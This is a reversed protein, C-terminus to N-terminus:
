PMALMVSRFLSSHGPSTPSKRTWGVPPQLYGIETLFQTYVARDIPKGPNATAHDRHWTDIESQLRDRHELLARNRPAFAAVLDSFGSWFSAEDLGTGPLIERDVFDKLLTSIKLNGASVHDM